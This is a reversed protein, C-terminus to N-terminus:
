QKWNNSELIEFNLTRRKIRLSYIQIEPWSLALQQHYTIMAISPQSYEYTGYSTDNPLYQAAKNKYHEAKKEDAKVNKSILSSVKWPFNTWIIWSAPCPFTSYSCRTPM